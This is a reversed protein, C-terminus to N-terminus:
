RLSKQLFIRKHNEPLNNLCGFVSYGLKEYFPQAQFSMTDLHAHHCGRRIAEEEALRVLRSGYGQGRLTDDIWLIRIHLWGWYTNGLLGGFVTGDGRRLFINLPLLCEDPAFRRNFNELGQEVVHIDDPKFSTELVISIDPSQKQEPM